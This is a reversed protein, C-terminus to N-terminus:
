FMFMVGLNIRRPLSYNYPNAVMISYLDIFAEPSIQQAITQQFEAAALFGDDEANGTYAYVSKVNKFNFINLV